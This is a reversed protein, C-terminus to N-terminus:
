AVKQYEAIFQNLIHQPVQLVTNNVEVEVITEDICMANLAAKMKASSLNNNQTYHKLTTEYKKHGIRRMTEKPPVNMSVLISIHTKRLSHYEFEIGTKKKITIVWTKVSNITLLEGNRKRNIFNGGRIPFHEEPNDAMKNMVIEYNRYALTDKVRNYEDYKEKLHAYLIDPIFITRVSAYTKVPGLCFMKEEYNMQKDITITHKEWDVDSWMLGFCESIRVGLYYGLMFATYLNTGNFIDHIKRIEEPTYSRVEELKKQDEQSINPMCLKTGKDIFMRTYKEPSIREMSYAIGYLQYFLKLFSEVYGYAYGKDKYLELLFAYLDATTLKSIYKDGFRAKVHNKWISSYKTVTATAKDKSFQNLYAQWLESMRIDKITKKATGNRLEVLKQERAKKAETKTELPKGNVDKRGTTDIKKGDITMYIRYAWNGNALKYVGTSNNAM